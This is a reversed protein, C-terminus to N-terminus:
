PAAAVANRLVRKVIKGTANNPLAEIFEVRRPVKYAALRYVVDMSRIDGSDFWGDRIPQATDDPRNWYGLM